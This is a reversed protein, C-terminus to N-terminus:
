SHFQAPEGCVIFADQIVLLKMNCNQVLEILARRSTFWEVIGRKQLIPFAHPRCGNAEFLVIYFSRSVNLASERVRPPQRYASSGSAFIGVDSLGSFPYSLRRM